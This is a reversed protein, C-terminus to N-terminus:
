TYVMEINQLIAVVVSMGCRSECLFASVNICQCAPNCSAGFIKVRGARICCRDFLKAIIGNSGPNPCPLYGLHVGQLVQGLFTSLSSSRPPVDSSPRRFWSKGPDDEM